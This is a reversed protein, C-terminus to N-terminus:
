IILSFSFYTDPEKEVASTSDTLALEFDWVVVYQIVSGVDVDQHLYETIRM